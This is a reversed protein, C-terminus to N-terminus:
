TWTCLVNTLQLLFVLIQCASLQHALSLLLLLLLTVPRSFSFPTTYYGALLIQLILLTAPRSFSSPTTSYGAEDRCVLGCVLLENVANM